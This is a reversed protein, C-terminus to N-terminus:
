KLRASKSLILIDKCVHICEVDASCSYLHLGVPPWKRKAKINIWKAASPTLQPMHSRTEQGPISGPARQMPLMSDWGSPCWPLGGLQSKYINVNNKMPFSESAPLSQPCSSFPIVLSLHSSPQIADRVRHVHTQTFEPLHHHVPLGPTSRNM